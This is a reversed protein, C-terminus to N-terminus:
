LIKYKPNLTKLIISHIESMMKDDIKGIKKIFRQTSFNRVQFCDASSEKSLGYRKSATLKFMWPYNKFVSSWETIPVITKLPLRGILDHSVVVAPRKKGIERGVNPFFEVEWIEGQKINM